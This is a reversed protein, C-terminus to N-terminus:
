RGLSRCPPPYIEEKLVCKGVGIDGADEGIRGVLIGGSIGDMGQREKWGITQEAEKQLGGKGFAGLTMAGEEMGMRGEEDQLADTADGASGVAVEGGKLTRGDGVGPPYPAFAVM